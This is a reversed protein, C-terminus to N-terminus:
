FTSYVSPVRPTSTGQPAANMTTLAPLTTVCTQDSVEQTSLAL